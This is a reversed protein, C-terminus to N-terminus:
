SRGPASRWRRSSMSAAAFAATSWCRCPTASRTSSEPLATISAVAGDLQRGGHNSVVIADAGRRKAERAEDPHLLGKIVLPGRWQQRLWDVDGWGIDPDLQEVM